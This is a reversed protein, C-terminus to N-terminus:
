LSDALYRRNDNVICPDTAFHKQNLALISYVVTAIVGWSLGIVVGADLIGRWPQPLQRFCLVLIIVGFLIVYSVILNRRPANFFTMCFLPALLLEFLSGSQTLYRARAAFRPSFSKQFGKYGESYAMFIGFSILLSWQILTLPGNLAAWSILALKVLASGMLFLFGTIGWLAGLTGPLHRNSTSTMDEAVVKEAEKNSTSSLPSPSNM